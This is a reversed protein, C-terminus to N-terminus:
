KNELKYERWNREWQVMKEIDAVRLGRAAFEEIAYADGFPIHILSLPKTRYVMYRAYGDYRQFSVVEGILDSKSDTNAHCWDALKKLYAEEAKHLAKLDYSWGGEERYDMLDPGDGLEAPPAYITAM